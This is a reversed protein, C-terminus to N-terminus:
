GSVPPCSSGRGVWWLSWSFPLPVPRAFSACPVTCLYMQEFSFVHQGEKGAAGERATAERRSGVEHSLEVHYAGAVYARGGKGQQGRQWMETRTRGHVVGEEWVGM